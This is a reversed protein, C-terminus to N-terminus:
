GEVRKWRANMEIRGWDSKLLVNLSNGKSRIVKPSDPGCLVAVVQGLLKFGEYVTM